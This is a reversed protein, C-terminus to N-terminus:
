RCEGHTNHVVSEVDPTVVGQCIESLGGEVM